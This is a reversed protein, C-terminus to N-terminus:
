DTNFTYIETDVDSNPALTAAIHVLQLMTFQFPSYYHMNMEKFYKNVAIFSLKNHSDNPYLSYNLMHWFGSITLTSRVIYASSGVKPKVISFAHCQLSYCEHCYWKSTNCLCEFIKKSVFFFFLIIFDIHILIHSTKKM